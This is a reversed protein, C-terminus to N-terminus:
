MFADDDDDDYEDYRVDDEDGYDGIENNDYTLRIIILVIM